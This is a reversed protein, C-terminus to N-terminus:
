QFHQKVNPSYLYIVSILCLLAGSLGVFFDGLLYLAMGVLNLIIGLQWAQPNMKKLELYVWIGVVAVILGVGASWDGNLDYMIISVIIGVIIDALIIYSAYTVEQPISEGM